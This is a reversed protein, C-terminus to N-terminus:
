KGIKANKEAVKREEERVVEGVVIRCLREALDEASWGWTVHGKADNNANQLRKGMWWGQSFECEQMFRELVELEGDGVKWVFEGKALGSASEDIILEKGRLAWIGPRIQSRPPPHFKPRLSKRYIIHLTRFHAITFTGSLSLPSTASRTPDSPYSPPLLYSPLPPVPEYTGNNTKSSPISAKTAQWAQEDSDQQQSPLQDSRTQPPKSSNGQFAPGERSDTSQQGMAPDKCAAQKSGWIWSTWGRPATEPAITNETVLQASLTQQLSEHEVQEEDQTVPLSVPRQDAADLEQKLQMGVEGGFSSDESASRMSFSSEQGDVDVGRSRESFIVRRIALSAEPRVLSMSRRFMDRAGKMASRPTPPRPPSDPTSETRTHRTAESRHPQPTPTPVSSMSDNFNVPVKVSQPPMLSSESPSSIEENSEDATNQEECVEPVISVDDNELDEVNGQRQEGGSEGLTERSEESSEDGVEEKRPTGAMLDIDFRGSNSRQRLQEKRIHGAGFRLKAGPEQYLNFGSLEDMNTSLFTSQELHADIDQGRKWPSPILKRRPPNAAKVLAEESDGESHCKQQPAFNPSSSHKAEALWIDTEDGANDILQTKDGEDESDSDIVIVQSESANQIERSIAERELQWQRERRATTTLSPGSIKTGPTLPRGETSADDRTCLSQGPYQFSVQDDILRQDHRSDTPLAGLRASTKELATSEPVAVNPAQRKGLEEGFRLGARLERQTGSDFGGFLESTHTQTSTNPSLGKERRLINEGDPSVVEQLAIGAFLAGASARHQHQPTRRIQHRPPSPLRPAQFPQPTVKRVLHPRATGSVGLLRNNRESTPPSSPVTSSIDSDDVALTPYVVVDQVSSSGPAKMEDKGHKSGTSSSASPPRNQQTHGPSIGLSQEHPSRYQKVSPLTDLDIMTFGECEIMTDLEEHKLMPAPDELPKEVSDSDGHYSSTPSPTPYSMASNVSVKRSQMQAQHSSTRNTATVLSSQRGRDANDNKTSAARQRTSIQNIDLKQLEPSPSSLAPGPEGANQEEEADTDPRVEFRVNSPKSGAKSPSTRSTSKRRTSQRRRPSRQQKLWDDEEADDGLPRIELDTVSQRRSRSSNRRNNARKLNGSDAQITTNRVPGKANNSPVSDFRVPSKSARTRARTAADSNDMNDPEAEVTVRIKWPSLNQEAVARFPSSPFVEITQSSSRSHRTNGKSAGTKPRVIKRTERIVTGSDHDDHVSTALPDPSSLDDNYRSAVSPSRQM